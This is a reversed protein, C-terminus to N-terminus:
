TEGLKVNSAITKIIKNNQKEDITRTVINVVTIYDDDLNEKNMKPIYHTEWGPIAKIAKAQVHEIAKTITHKGKEWTDNEKVYMTLRKTDTCHIPREYMSYNNLTKIFLNSITKAYGQNKIFDLEEVGIEFNQIFDTMNVANKCETNLFVMTNNYTNNQNGNIITQPKTQNANAVIIQNQSLVINKLETIEDKLSKFILNTNCKKNHRWLGARDNFSKDCTKCPYKKLPNLPNANDANDNQSLAFHKRTHLHETYHSKYRTMYDCNKCVYFTATKANNKNDM